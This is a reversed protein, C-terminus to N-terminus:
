FWIAKVEYIICVDIKENFITRSINITWNPNSIIDQVKRFTYYRM